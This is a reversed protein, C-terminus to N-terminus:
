INEKNLKDLKDLKDLKLVDVEFLESNGSSLIKKDLTLMGKFDKLIKQEEHYADLGSLYFTEKLITIKSLDELSFRQKVTRNTIGIKYYIKDNHLIKLYYLIGPLEKQFGNIWKYSIQLEKTRKHLTSSTVNFFNRFEKQNLFGNEDIFTKTIFDKDDYYEYNKIHDELYQQKAILFNKSTVYSDSNYRTQCTNKLTEIQKNKDITGNQYKNSIEKHIVKDSNRCEKSCYNGFISNNLKFVKFNNCDSHNCKLDEEEYGNDIIFKRISLDNTKSYKDQSSYWSTTNYLHNIAEIIDPSSNELLKSKLRNKISLLPKMFADEYNTM